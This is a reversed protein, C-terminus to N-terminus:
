TISQCLQEINALTLQPFTHMLLQSIPGEDDVDLKTEVVSAYAKLSALLDNANQWLSRDPYRTLLLMDTLMLQEVQEAKIEVDLIKEYRKALKPKDQKQKGLGLRHKRLALTIYNRWPLLQELMQTLQQRSLRGRGTKALWFLFLVINVNFGHRQQLDLCALKIPQNAYLALSFEWFPHTPLAKIKKNM